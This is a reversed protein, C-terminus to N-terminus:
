ELCMTIHVGDVEFVNYYARRRQVVQFGEEVNTVATTQFIININYIYKKISIYILYIYLIYINGGGIGLPM